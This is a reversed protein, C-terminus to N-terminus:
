EHVDLFSVLLSSNAGGGTKAITLTNNGPALVLWRGSTAGATLHPGEDFADVGDNTVRWAGSDVILEKTSALTGGWTWACAGCGVTLGTLPASGGTFTLTVATVDGDGGNNITLVKPSTDLTYVSASGLVHGDGLYIGDQGIYWSDGHLAGYWPSGVEFTMRCQQRNTIGGPRPADLEVLRAVCWHTDGNAMERILRGRRRSRGRLASLATELAALSSEAYTAKYNLDYPLDLPARASGYIDFHGGGGLRVAGRRSPGAGTPTDPDYLPLNVGDFLKLIYSM